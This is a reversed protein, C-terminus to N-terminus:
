CSSTKRFACPLLLAITAAQGGDENRVVLGHGCNPAVHASLSHPSTVDSPNEGLKRLGHPKRPLAPKTRLWRSSLYWQLKGKCLRPAASPQAPTAIVLSAGM